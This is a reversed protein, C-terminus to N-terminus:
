LRSARRRRMCKKWAEFAIRDIITDDLGDHTSTCQVFEGYKDNIKDM